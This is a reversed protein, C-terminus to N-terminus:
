RLKIWRAEKEKFGKCRQDIFTFVTNGLKSESNMFAETTKMPVRNEKGDLKITKETPYIYIPFKSKMGGSDGEAEKDLLVTRIKNAVELIPPDGQPVATLVALNDRLLRNNVFFRSTEMKPNIDEPAILVLTKTFRDSDKDRWDTAAFFAALSAGRGIGIVVLRNMNIMGEMHVKELTNKLLPLDAAAMLAFDAPQFDEVLYDVLKQSAPAALVPEVVTKAKRNSSGSSSRQQTRQKMEIKPPTRELRKTSRGHGRLDPALVAYGNNALLDTLPLFDKRSGNVDHLLLVPVTERDANGYYYTATLKVPHDEKTVFWDGELERSKGKLPSEKKAKSKAPAAEEDQAPLSVSLFLGFFLIPFFRHFLFRIPM